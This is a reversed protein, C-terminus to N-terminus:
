CLVTFEIEDFETGICTGFSVVVRDFEDIIGAIICSGLFTASIYFSKQNVDLFVKHFFRKLVGTSSSSLSCRLSYKSSKKISDRSRPLLIIFFM